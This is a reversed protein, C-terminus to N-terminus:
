MRSTALYGPSATQLLKGDRITENVIHVSNLCGTEHVFDKQRPSFAIAERLMRDVIGWYTRCILSGIMLPRYNEVRSGDKGQKRILITRNANWATPQIKSVLILNYLMRLLEKIEQGIINGEYVTQGPPSATGHTPLASKLIVHRSRKFHRLLARGAESVRHRTCVLHTQKAISIQAYAELPEMLKLM